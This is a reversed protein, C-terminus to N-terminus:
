MEQMGHLWNWLFALIWGFVYGIVTTLTVLVLAATFNFPGVIFQINIMHAWLIFDMLAQAVGLAVLLSWFIHWGSFFLGVTVAAKQKNIHHM